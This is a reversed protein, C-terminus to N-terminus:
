YYDSCSLIILGPDPDLDPAAEPPFEIVPLATTAVRDVNTTM